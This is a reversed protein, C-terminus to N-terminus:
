KLMPLEVYSAHVRNHHVTLTPTGEAPYRAFMAADHGAIAIRIRHGQKILVSTAYLNFTIETVEGPVLPASDAQKYSHYPGLPAYPSEGDSIKHHIARLIGETIYTVRGDPAVDELYVHFAGDPETSAVQLTVIPSGTIELDTTVPESTYTLLKKDEEARDPYIVDGGLQTHWRTQAGTTASFDVTYDDGSSATGQAQRLTSPDDSTPPDPTLLGEAGFYWRQPTFGKPPWSDTTKWAGEGLTYYMIGREAESPTKDKLHQDFFAMLMEIQQASSPDPSRDPPLFPDTHQSGGHDWPGIILKQPNSFTLYRSLAGDVTGADLWSVWVYMPTDSSEIAEKRGYPSIEGITASGFADDRYRIQQLAQLVDLSEHDAVAEALQTGDRDSDVPKMGRVFLQSARCSFGSLGSAACMDNADLAQNSENWMEIFKQNLVGGPMALHFLPDFDSYQPAVAKVAPHNPVSMLEATNGDYSVGYAGVNGNSWPQNVIWEVVEGLDAVEQDSWEIARQGFSAGSGRADVLLLAYGAENFDGAEAYFEDILGLREALRLIMGLQYARGYRTSRVITPVQQNAALDAPYWIDIAIQTGDRMTIYRAENRTYGAPTMQEGPASLILGLLLPAGVCLALVGLCGLSMKRYISRVGKNNVQKMAKKRGKTRKDGFLHHLEERGAKRVARSVKAGRPSF